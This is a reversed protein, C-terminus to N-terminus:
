DVIEKEIPEFSDYKFKVSEKLIRVWSSLYRGPSRVVSLTVLCPCLHLMSRAIKCRPHAANRFHNLYIEGDQFWWAVLLWCISLWPSPLCQFYWYNQLSPGLKLHPVLRWCTWKMPLFLTLSHWLVYSQLSRFSHVNGLRLRNARMHHPLGDYTSFNEKSVPFSSSLWSLLHCCHDCCSSLM